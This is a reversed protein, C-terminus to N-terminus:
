SIPFFRARRMESAAMTAAQEGGPERCAPEFVGSMREASGIM